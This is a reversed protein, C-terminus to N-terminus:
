ETFPFFEFEEYLPGAAKEAGAWTGRMLSLGELTWAPGEYGELASLLGTAADAPGAPDLEAVQLVPQFRRRDVYLRLTAAVIGVDGALQTFREVDGTMRAVVVQQSREDAVAGGALQLTPAPVLDPMSEALTSSLRPVEENPLNGFQAVVVHLREAPIPTVGNGPRIASEVAAAIHERAEAPPVAAARLLM